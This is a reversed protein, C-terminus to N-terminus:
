CNVGKEWGELNGSMVNKFFNKETSEGVVRVLIPKRAIVVLLEHWSSFIIQYKMNCLVLIQQM